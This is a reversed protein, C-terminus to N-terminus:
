PRCFEDTNTHNVFDWYKGYQDQFWMVKIDNQPMECEDNPHFYSLHVVFIALHSNKHGTSLKEPAPFNDLTEGLKNLYETIEQPVYEKVRKSLYKM